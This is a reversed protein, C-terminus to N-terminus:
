NGYLFIYMQILEEDVGLKRLRAMLEEFIDGFDELSTETNDILREIEELSCNEYNNYKILSVGSHNKRDQFIIYRIVGRYFRRSLRSFLVRYFVVFVM